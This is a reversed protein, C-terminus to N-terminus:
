LDTERIYLAKKTRVPPYHSLTLLTERWDEIGSAEGPEVPFAAPKLLKTPSNIQSLKPSLLDFPYSCFQGMLGGFLVANRFERRILPYQRGPQQLM